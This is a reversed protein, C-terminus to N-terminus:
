FGGRAYGRSVHFVYNILDNVLSLARNFFVRVRTERDRERERERYIYLL